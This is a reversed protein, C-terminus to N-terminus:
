LRTTLKRVSIVVSKATRKDLVQRKYVDLHTYSVAWGSCESHSWFGCTICRYWEEGDRGFDDCIICKENNQDSVLAGTDSEDYIDETIDSEDTEEIRQKRKLKKFNRKALKKEGNLSDRICM